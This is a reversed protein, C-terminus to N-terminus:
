TDLDLMAAGNGELIGVSELYYLGHLKASLADDIHGRESIKVGFHMAAIRLIQPSQKVLDAGTIVSLLNAAGICQPSLFRSGTMKVGKGQRLSWDEVVVVDLPELMVTFRALYSMYDEFTLTDNFELDYDGSWRAVGVRKDGPDISLIM